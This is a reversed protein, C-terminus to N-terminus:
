DCYDGQKLVPVDEDPFYVFFPFDELILGAQVQSNRNPCYSKKGSNM